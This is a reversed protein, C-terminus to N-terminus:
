VDAAGENTASRTSAGSPAPSVAFTIPETPVADFALKQSESASEPFHYYHLTRGDEKTITKKLFRM